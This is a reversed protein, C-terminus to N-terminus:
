EEDGGFNMGQVTEDIGYFNDCDRRSLIRVVKIEEPPTPHEKYEWWESGDYEHRELWFDDGAVILDTAIEPLGYGDDYDTKNAVDIFNDVPIRFDHGFVYRIEDLSKGHHELISFTEKLLNM